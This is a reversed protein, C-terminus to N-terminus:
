RQLQFVEHRGWQSLVTDAIARDGAPKLCQLITSSSCEHRLCLECRGKVSALIQPFAQEKARKMKELRLNEVSILRGSDRCDMLEFLICGLAWVDHAFCVTTPLSGQLLCELPRYDKTNILSCPQRAGSKLCMGFDALLLRPSEMPGSILANGPKLDRHVWGKRHLYSVAYSLQLGFSARERVTEQYKNADLFFSLSSNALGLLIGADQQTSTAVIGVVALINPHSFQRMCSYEQIIDPMDGDQNNAIKVAFRMNSAPELVQCVCGYSGQGLLKEFKLKADNWFFFKPLAEDEPRPPPGHGDEPPEAAAPRFARAKANRQAIAYAMKEFQKAEGTEKMALWRHQMALRSRVCTKGKLRKSLPM